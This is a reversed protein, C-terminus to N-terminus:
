DLDAIIKTYYINFGAVWLPALNLLFAAVELPSFGYYLGAWCLVQALSASPVLVRIRDGAM